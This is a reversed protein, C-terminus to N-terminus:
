GSVTWRGSLLLQKGLPAETGHRRMKMEGYHFDASSTRKAM